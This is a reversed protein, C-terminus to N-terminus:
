LLLRCSMLGECSVTRVFHGLLKSMFEGCILEANGPQANGSNGTHVSTLKMDM